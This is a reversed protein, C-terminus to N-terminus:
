KYYVFERIRVVGVNYQKGDSSSVKQFIRSYVTAPEDETDDQGEENTEFNYKADYSTHPDLLYLLCNLYRDYYWGINYGSGVQGMKEFAEIGKQKQVDYSENINDQLVRYWLNALILKGYEEWHEDIKYTLVNLKEVYVNEFQPKRIEVEHPLFVGIEIFVNFSQQILTDVDESSLSSMWGDIRDKSFMSMVGTREVFLRFGDRMYEPTIKHDNYHNNIAYKLCLGLYLGDVAQLTATGLFCLVCLLLNTLKRM